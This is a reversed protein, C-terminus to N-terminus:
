NKNQGSEQRATREIEAEINRFEQMFQDRQNRLTMLVPDDKFDGPDNSLDKLLQEFMRGPDFEDQNEEELGTESEKSSSDEVDKDDTVFSAYSQETKDKNNPESNGLESKNQQSSGSISSHSHSPTGSNILTESREPQVAEEDRTERYSGDLQEIHKASKTKKERKLKEIRSSSSTPTHTENFLRSGIVQRIVNATPSCSESDSTYRPESTKVSSVTSKGDEANKKNTREMTSSWVTTAETRCSVPSIVRAQPSGKSTQPSNGVDAEIIKVRHFSVSSAPTSTHPFSSLSASRKVADEKQKDKDFGESVVEEDSFILSKTTQTEASIMPSSGVAVSKLVKSFEEPSKSGIQCPRSEIDPQDTIEQSAPVNRPGDCPPQNQQCNCTPQHQYQSCDPIFTSHQHGGCINPQHQYIHSQTSFPKEAENRYFQRRPTARQPPPGQNKAVSDRANELKRKLRWQFLIDNEQRAKTPSAHPKSLSPPFNEKQWQMKRPIEMEQFRKSINAPLPNSMRPRGNEESAQTTDFSSVKIDFSSSKNTTSKLSSQPSPSSIVSSSEQLLKELRSNLTSISTNGPEPSGPKVPSETEPLKLITKEPKPSAPTKGTIGSTNRSIHSVDKSTTENQLDNLRMSTSKPRSTVNRERSPENRSAATSQKTRNLTSPTPLKSKRESPPKPDGYRFRNLRMAINSSRQSEASLDRDTAFSTKIRLPKPDRGYSSNDKATRATSTLPGPKSPMNSTNSLQLASIEEDLGVSDKSPWQEVFKSSTWSEVDNLYRELDRAVSDKEYSPISPKTSTSDEEHISYQEPTYVEPPLSYEHRRIVKQPTLTINKDQIDKSPSPIYHSQPLPPLQFPNKGPPIFVSNM